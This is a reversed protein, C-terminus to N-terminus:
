GQKPQNGRNHHRADSIKNRRGICTPVLKDSRRARVLHQKAKSQAVCSCVCLRACSALKSVLESERADLENQNFSIVKFM